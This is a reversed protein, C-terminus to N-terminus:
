AAATVAAVSQRPDEAATAVVPARHPAVAVAATVAAVSLRSDVVAAGPARPPEEAAAGAAAAVTPSWHPPLPADPHANAVGSGIGIASVGLPNNATICLAATIAVGAALKKITM